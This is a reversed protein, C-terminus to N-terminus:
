FKESQFGLRKVKYPNSERMIKSHLVDDDFIAAKQSQIRQEVCNYNINDLTFPSSHLNSFVSHCGLFVIKEEDVRAPVWSM